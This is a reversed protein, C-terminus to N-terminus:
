FLINMLLWNYTIVNKSKNLAEVKLIYSGSSLKFNIDFFKSTGYPVKKLEFTGKKIDTGNKSISWSLTCDSINKNSTHSFAIHIIKNKNGWYTMHNPDINFIITDPSNILNIREKTNDDFKPNRDYHYLGSTEHEVDYLETYVFGAIKYMRLQEVEWIYNEPFGSGGFESVMVPQGEYHYGKAMLDHSVNSSYFSLNDGKRLSLLSLLAKDWLNFSAEYLHADAIDTKAHNWGSNDIVLRSPDYMKVRKYIDIIFNQEEKDDLLNWIGWDENFLGWIIVSPHDFDRKIMSFLTYEFRKKSIDNFNTFSPVEEWIYMGVIDAWFLFKPNEIKEHIELGNFGLQKAIEIDRRFDRISPPTYIGGPWYGQALAMRLFTPEDNILITRNKTEIDRFGFYTRVEDLTKGSSLLKITAFYLYPHEGNWFNPKKVNFSISDTSKYTKDLVVTGASDLVKIYVNDVYKQNFVSLNLLVKGNNSPNIRMSKIYSKDYFELWVDQWIGCSRKFSVNSWPDLPDNEQKGHPIDQLNKPMFVRVVLNNVGYNVFSSVDFTFPTYGGEHKGVYKGNVWVMTSYNVAGFKLLVGTKEDVNFYTSYWGIETYSGEGMGSLKSNWPFPLKISKDFKDKDFWHKKLGVNSKDFQFSWKNVTLNIMSPRAFIPDPFKRLNLVPNMAFLMTVILFSTIVVSALKRM